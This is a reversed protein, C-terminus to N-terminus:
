IGLFFTTSVIVPSFYLGIIFYFDFSIGLFYLLLSSFSSTLPDL